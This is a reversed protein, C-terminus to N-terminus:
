GLAGARWLAGGRDRDDLPDTGLLLTRPTELASVRHEVLANEGYQVLRRAAEAETLGTADAETPVAVPAKATTPAKVTAQDQTM